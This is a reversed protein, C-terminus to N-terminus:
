AAYLEVESGIEIMDDDTIPGHILDVSLGLEDELQYKIASLMMLTVPGNFEMILDVDSDERNTGAARSGFLSVRKVNYQEIISSLKSRIFETSM